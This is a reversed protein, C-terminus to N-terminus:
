ALLKLAAMPATNAQALVSIGAQQLINGRVLNSTEEAIDADVIRSQATSANEKAIQLTNVTSHLKNQQAGLNARVANVKNLATDIKDISDRADDIQASSIDAIGLENTQVNYEKTHLVIRDQESNRTGVQIDLEGKRANGNLLPTGAYETVNAIRDVEAKLSQYEQDIFARERDSVTDTAAQISLERLRILINGVEALGGEAVQVFSIGDNTNREAQGLSRVQARFNESISLGAADDAASNIRKGSSLKEYTKALERSTNGVHRSASLAAINTAIRIGM